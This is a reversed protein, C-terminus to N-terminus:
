SHKQINLSKKYYSIAGNGAIVATLWMILLLVPSQGFTEYQIYVEQDYISWFDKYVFMLVENHTTIKLDKMVIGHYPQKM